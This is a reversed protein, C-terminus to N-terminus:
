TISERPQQTRVTIPPRENLQALLASQRKAVAEIAAAKVPGFGRIQEPLQALELVVDYRADDLNQCLQGILKAYAGPLARELRREASYGFPDAWSGRLGRCKALLRM